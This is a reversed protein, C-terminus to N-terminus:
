LKMSTEAATKISLSPSSPTSSNRLHYRIVRPIEACMLGLKRLFLVAAVKSRWPVNYEVPIERPWAVNRFSGVSVRKWLGVVHKLEETLLLRQNKKHFTDEVSRYFQLLINRVSKFFIERSASNSRLGCMVRPSCYEFRLDYRRKMYKM